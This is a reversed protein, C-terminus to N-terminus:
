EQLVFRTLVQNFVRQNSRQNPQTRNSRHLTERVGDARREISNSGSQGVCLLVSIESAPPLAVLETAKQMKLHLKPQNPTAGEASRAIPYGM